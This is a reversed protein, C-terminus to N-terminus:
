ELFLKAARASDRGTKEGREKKKFFAMLRWTKSLTNKNEQGQIFENVPNELAPFGLSSTEAM